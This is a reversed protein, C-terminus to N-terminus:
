YKNLMRLGKDRQVRPIACTSYKDLSYVICPSILYALPIYMYLALLILMNLLAEHLGTYYMYM